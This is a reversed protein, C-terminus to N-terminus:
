ADERSRLIQGIRRWPVKRHDASLCSWSWLRPRVRNLMRGFERKELGPVEMASYRFVRNVLDQDLAVCSNRRKVDEAFAEYTQKAYLNRTDAKIREMMNPVRLLSLVQVDPDPADDNLEAAVDEQM